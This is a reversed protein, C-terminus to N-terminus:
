VLWNWKSIGSFTMPPDLTSHEGYCLCYHKFLMIIEEVEDIMELSGIRAVDQSELWAKEPSTSPADYGSAHCIDVLRVGSLGCRERLFEQRSTLDPYETFLPLIIGRSQLNRVMTTGFADNLAMPEYILFCVFDHCTKKWFSILNANEQSLLYCLTCESLILTPLTPDIYSLAEKSNMLERLDQGVLHYNETHINPDLQNWHDRDSIEPVTESFGVIKRLEPDHAIALKKIRASDPFDIEVYVKAPYRQLVRYARTDSGGGLSVIQCREFLTAFEDIVADIIRTRIYTGKNILPLKREGFSARFVRSALMNTYGACYQLNARYSRKLADIHTDPPDFYGQQNASHRCSLADLDTARVIKDHKQLPSLM